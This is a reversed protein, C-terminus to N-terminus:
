ALPDKPASTYVTALWIETLTDILRTEDDFPPEDLAALYYLREGLWTLAGAMTSADISSERALGSARDRAIREAARRTYSEMLETWLETLGPDSRWNEVIARLVPAKARWLRAGDAIGGRIEDAPTGDGAYEIWPRAAEHGEAVASRVLEALVAHKGEFYFYFSARSVGAAGLIDAVSLEDFRYEALLRETAELIAREVDRSEGAARTEKRATRRSM